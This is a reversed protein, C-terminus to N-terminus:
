DVEVAVVCLDPEAAIFFCDDGVLDGFSVYAPLNLESDPVGIPDVFVAIRDLVLM